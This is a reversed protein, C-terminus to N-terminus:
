GMRRVRKNFLCLFDGLRRSCYRSWGHMRYKEVLEEGEAKDKVTQIGCYGYYCGELLNYTVDIIRRPVDLDDVPCPAGPVPRDDTFVERYMLTLYLPNQSNGSIILQILILKM